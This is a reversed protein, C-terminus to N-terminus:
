IFWVRVFTRSSSWHCLVKSRPNQNFFNSFQVNNALGHNSRRPRTGYAFHAPWLWSCHGRMVDGGPM